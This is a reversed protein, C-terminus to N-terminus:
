VWLSGNIMNFPYGLSLMLCVEWPWRQAARIQLGGKYLDNSLGTYETTYLLGTYETTYLLGTYETTYLLDTYETTYLLGTNVYVYQIYMGSPGDNLGLQLQCVFSTGTHKIFLLM